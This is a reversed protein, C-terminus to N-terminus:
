FNQPDNKQGWIVISQGGPSPGPNKKPRKQDVKKRCRSITWFPRFHIQPCNQVTKKKSAPPRSKPSDDVPTSSKPPPTSSLVSMMWVDVSLSCGSFKASSPLNRALTQNTKPWTQGSMPWGKTETGTKLVSLSFRFRGHALDPRAM